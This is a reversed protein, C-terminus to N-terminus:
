STRTFTPPGQKQTINAMVWEAIMADGLSALSFLYPTKRDGRQIHLTYRDRSTAIVKTWPTTTLGESDLFIARKDTLYLTGPPSKDGRQDYTGAGTFYCADPATIKEDSTVVPLRGGAAAIAAEFELFQVIGRMTNLRPAGAEHDSLGLRQQLTFLSRLSILTPAKEAEGAATNFMDIRRTLEAQAALWCRDVEAARLQGTSPVMLGAFLIGVGLLVVIPSVLVGGILGVAGFALLLARVTPKSSTVPQPEIKFRTPDVGQRGMPARGPAAIQRVRSRTSKRSSRSVYSLASGPIGFSQTIGRKGVTVHAGRRGFSWSLGTKGLNMKIGPAIKLTRRFRFGM